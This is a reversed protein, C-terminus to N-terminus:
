KQIGIVLCRAIGGLDYKIERVHLGHEKAIASVAPQQGAGIEIVAVGDEALLSPMHRLIERYCVMGDKGGDLALHPEHCRVSPELSAIDSSPIYPPNSIVIDFREMLTKNNKETAAQSMKECWNSQLFMARTDVALAQANYRAVDLAAQSIDVGLGTANPYEALITLLLCGTGTGLDLVRLAQARNKRKALVAEILTESDARPDLTDGTVKFERGFFERMGILQSVPKHDLRQAILSQYADHQVTTLLVKDDALLQERTINLVHQLLIRADLSATAIQARQLTIAGWYLVSKVNYQPEGMPELKRALM